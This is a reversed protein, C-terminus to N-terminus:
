ARRQRVNAGPLEDDVLRVEDTLPTLVEARVVQAESRLRILEAGAHPDGEGRGGRRRHPALDAPPEPQAIGLHHDAVEVARVDVEGHLAGARQLVLLRKIASIAAFTSPEPM